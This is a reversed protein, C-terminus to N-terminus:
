KSDQAAEELNRGGAQVDEGVGEMTNCAATLLSLALIAIASLRKM